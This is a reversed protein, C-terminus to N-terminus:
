EAPAPDSPARAVFERQGRLRGAAVEVRYVGGPVLPQAKAVVKAGTLSDDFLFGRM